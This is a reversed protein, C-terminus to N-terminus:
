GNLIKKLKYKRLIYLLGEQKYIINYLMKMENGNFKRNFIINDTNFYSFYVSIAELDKTIKYEELYFALYYRSFGIKFIYETTATSLKTDDTKLIEFGLEKIFEIINYVEHEM